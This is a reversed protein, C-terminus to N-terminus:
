VKIENDNKIGKINDVQRPKFLGGCVICQELDSWKASKLEEINEEVGWKHPCEMWLRHEQSKLKYISATIPKQKKDIRCLKKLLRKKLNDNKKNTLKPSTPSITEVGRVLLMRCVNCQGKADMGWIHPCLKFLKVNEDKIKYIDSSIKAGLKDLKARRKIFKQLEKDKKAKEQTM